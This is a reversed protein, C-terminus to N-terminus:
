SNTNEHHINGKQNELENLITSVIELKTQYYSLLANIVREDNPAAALDFCLQIYITDYAELEEMAVKLAESDLSGEYSELLTFQKNITNQYYTEVDAYQESVDSLTYSSSTGQGPTFVLLAVVLVAAISSVYALFRVPKKKRNNDLKMEFREFHGDHPLDNQIEDRSDRILIELQDM